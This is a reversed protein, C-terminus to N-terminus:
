EDVGLIIEDVGLIIEDVGLIITPHDQPAPPFPPPAPAHSPMRAGRPWASSASSRKAEKEQAQISGSDPGALSPSDRPGPSM